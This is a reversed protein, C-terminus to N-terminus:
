HPPRSREALRTAAPGQFPMSSARSAIPGAGAMKLLQSGSPLEGIRRRLAAGRLALDSAQVLRLVIQAQRDADGLLEPVGAPRISM